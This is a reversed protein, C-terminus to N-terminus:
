KPLNVNKLHRRHLCYYFMPGRSYPTCIVPVSREAASTQLSLSSCRETTSTHCASENSQCESETNTSHCPEATNDLSSSYHLRKAASSDETDDDPLQHERDVPCHPKLAESCQLTAEGHIVTLLSRTQESLDTCKAAFSTMRAIFAADFIDGCRVCM